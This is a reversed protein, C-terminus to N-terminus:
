SYLLNVENLSFLWLFNGSRTHARHTFRYVAAVLLGLILATGLVILLSTLPPSHLEGVNM